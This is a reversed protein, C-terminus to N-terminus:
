ESMEYIIIVNEYITGDILLFKFLGILQDGFKNYVVYDTDTKKSLGM